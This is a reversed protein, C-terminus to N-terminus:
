LEIVLKDLFLENYVNQITEEDNKVLEELIHQFDFENSTNNEKDNSKQLNKILQIKVGSNILEKYEKTSKFINFEETTTELKIKIKTNNEKGSSLSKKVKTVVEHLTKSSAKVVKRVPVNIPIFEINKENKENQHIFVECLFRQDTDGFSHQLPSGPYYINEGVKQFDHIHGSVVIPYDYKWEDGDESLIAGMKCGKFEQHAFIISANEWKKNKSTSLTSLAELFRGPPVYPCLIIDDEEIVTDVIKVRDWTKLANMWHQDTLFISNNVADHNGVLIYTFALSSLRRIFELAKNLAQTFLREHYHMVDGGIVIVDYKKLYFVREIENLLIDIEDGNDPKIHPDGIFLIRKTM